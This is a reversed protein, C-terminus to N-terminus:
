YGADKLLAAVTAADMAVGGFVLKGNEVTATRVVRCPNEKKKKIVREIKGALLVRQDDIPRLGGEGFALYVDAAAMKSLALTKEVVQDGEIRLATVTGTELVKRQENLSLKALAALLTKQGAYQVVVRADLRDHAIMPIYGVIGQRLASLDEGRAELVRWIAAMQMLRKATMEISDALALKLDHTSMAQLQDSDVILIENM